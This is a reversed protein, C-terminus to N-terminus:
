SFLKPLFYGAVAAGVALAAIGLWGWGLLLGLGVGLLAGGAAFGVSKWSIHSLFGGGGEEQQEAPAPQPNSPESLNAPGGGVRPGPGPATSDDDFSRHASPVSLKSAASHNGDYVSDGSASLLSEAQQAAPSEAMTVAAAAGAAPLLSGLIVLLKRMPTM